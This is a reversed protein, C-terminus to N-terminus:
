PRSPELQGSLSLVLESLTKRDSPKKLFRLQPSEKFLETLSPQISSSFVIVPKKALLANGKLVSLLKAGDMGPMELDTIILNVRRRTLERIASKGDTAEWIQCGPAAEELTRRVFGRVTQSDDIVLFEL